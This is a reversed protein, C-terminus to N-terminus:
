RVIIADAVPRSEMTTVREGRITLTVSDGGDLNTADVAGLDVMVDATEPISAGVSDDHRGEILVLMLGGGLDVGVATRPDRDGAWHAFGEEIQRVHRYGDEVLGPGGNVVGVVTHPLPGDLTRIYGRDADGTIQAIQPTGDDHLLLGTTFEAWVRGELPSMGQGAIIEGDVMTVGRPPGDPLIFYGGNVAVLADERAAIKPVPLVGDLEGDALVNTVRHLQDPAIRVRHITWPGDDDCERDILTYDIGTDLDETTRQEVCDHGGLRLEDRPEVPAAPTDASAGCASLLLVAAPAALSRRLM